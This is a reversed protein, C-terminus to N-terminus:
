KKLFLGVMMPIGDPNGNGGMGGKYPLVIFRYGLKDAQEKMLFAQINRSPAAYRHKVGSRMCATPRWEVGTDGQHNYFNCEVQRNNYRTWGQNLFNDKEVYVRTPVTVIMIECGAKAGLRLAEVETESFPLVGDHDLVGIQTGSSVLRRLENIINGSVIKIDSNPYLQQKYQRLESVVSVMNDVYVLKDIHCSFDITHERIHRKFNKLGPGVLSICLGKRTKTGFHNRIHYAIDKNVSIKGAGGTLYQGNVLNTTAM